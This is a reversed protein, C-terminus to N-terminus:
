HFLFATATSLFYANQLVLRNREIGPLLFGYFEIYLLTTWTCLFFWFFIGCAWGYVFRQWGDPTRALAILLPTLAFPALWSVDFKPFTLLLLGATALSLLAHLLVRRYYPTFIYLSNHM